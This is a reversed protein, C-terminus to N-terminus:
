PVREMLHEIFRRAGAFCAGVVSDWAVCFGRGREDM